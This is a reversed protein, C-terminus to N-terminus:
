KKDKNNRFEQLRSKAVEARDHTVTGVTPSVKPKSDKLLSELENLNFSIVRASEEAKAIRCYDLPTQKYLM